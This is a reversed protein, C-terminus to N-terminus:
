ALVGSAFLTGLDLGGQWDRLRPHDTGSVVEAAGDEGLRAVLVDSLATQALVIPSHTSIWVQPGRVARLSALVTEIAQPHIGNEPEETLLLAPLADPPLYPLLSLALIRVTGDSLGYSTVRHGGSYTVVFYLRHDGDRELFDIDVIQPLATRVHDIWRAFTAPDADRVGRALWPTNRADSRLQPADGPPAAERLRTWDPAYCVTRERLAGLFWRTAPFLDDDAPISGLVLQQPRPRVTLDLPRSTTETTLRAFGRGREVVRVPEPDAGLLTCEEGVVQVDTDSVDLRLEYRLREPPRRATALSGRSLATVVERPLVAEVALVIEADVGGHLLERLATARAPVGQAAQLFADVARDATVLAGLLVPIDLLTSKGSGNAGALVQYAGTQVDLHRFCRYNVAQIRTIM